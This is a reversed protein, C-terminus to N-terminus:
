ALSALPKLKWYLRSYADNRAQDKPSVGKMRRPDMNHRLDALKTKIIDLNQTLRAFQEGVSEGPVKTMGKAGVVVRESMGIARLDDFTVGCDEVVDHLVGICMLELDDTDLYGMVTLPHLIYPMGAKDFQGKHKESAFAIATALM